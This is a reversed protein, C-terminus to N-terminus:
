VDYAKPTADGFESRYSLESDYESAEGGGSPLLQETQTNKRREARSVDSRSSDLRTKYYTLCIVILMVAFFVAMPLAIGFNYLVYMNAGQYYRLEFVITMALRVAFSAALIAVAVIMRLLAGRATADAQKSRAVFALVVMSLCLALLSAYLVTFTVDLVGPTYKLATFVIAVICLLVSFVLLVVKTVIVIRPSALLFGFIADVWMVFFITITALEGIAGARRFSNNFFVFILLRMGCRTLTFPVYESIGGIGGFGIMAVVTASLWLAASAFVCALMVTVMQTLIAKWVLALVFVVACAVLTVACVALLLGSLDWGRQKELVSKSFAERMQAALSAEAALAVGVVQQCAACSCNPWSLMQTMAVQKRAILDSVEKFARRAEAEYNAFKRANEAVLLDQGKTTLQLCTVSWRDGLLFDPIFSVNCPAPFRRSRSAAHLAMAQMQKDYEFREGVMTAQLLACDEANSCAKTLKDLVDIKLMM